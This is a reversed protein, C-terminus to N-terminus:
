QMSVGSDFYASDVVLDCCISFGSLYVECKRGEENYGFILVESTMNTYDYLFINMKVKIRNLMEIAQRAPICLM